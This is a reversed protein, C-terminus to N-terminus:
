GGCCKKYKKGSGCPCPENRGKRTTNRITEIPEYSQEPELDLSPLPLRQTPTEGLAISDFHERVMEHLAQYLPDPVFEEDDLHDRHHSGQDGSFCEWEALEEVTDYVGTLDCNMQSELFAEEGRAYSEEVDELEALSEEPLNHAFAFRAEELGLGTGMESLIWILSDLLYPDDPDAIAARLHGLLRQAAEERTLKEDRVLLKFTKMAACRVYLDVARNSILDDLRTTQEAAFVALMRHLCEPIVDGYLEYPGDDPLTIAERIAPWASHDRFETLLFLAVIHANEEADGTTRFEESAAEICQSLRSLFLEPHEQIARIEEEPLSGDAAEFAAMIRNVFDEDNEDPNRM